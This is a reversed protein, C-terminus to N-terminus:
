RKNERGKDAKNEFCIPCKAEKFVSSVYCLWMCVGFLLMTLSYVLLSPLPTLSFTIWAKWGETLAYLGAFMWIVDLILNRMLHRHKRQEERITKCIMLADSKNPM